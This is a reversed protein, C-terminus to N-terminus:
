PVGAFDVTVHAGSLPESLVIAQQQVTTAAISVLQQALGIPGGFDVLNMDQALQLPMDIVENGTTFNAVQAILGAEELDRALEPPLAAVKGKIVVPRPGFLLPVLVQNFGVNVALGVTGPLASMALGVSTDLFGAAIQQNNENNLRPGSIRFGDVENTRPTFLLQDMVEFSTVNQTERVVALVAAVNTPVENTPYGLATLDVPFRVQMPLTPPEGEIKLNLAPGMTAGGEPVVGSLLTQLQALRLPELKFKTRTPVATPEILVRVPGGDSQAELIGGQPYLGVFGDDFEQRSVPVYVRTGNLNVFTASVFDEETGSIFSSFSGDVKSLVTQTEGTSENVLIVPVEPDAVGPQGHVVIAFPDDGPEFAPIDDLIASPVNTAGPEYIILQATAVRTSLPVTTFSFESQGELPLGTPDAITAALRVRYTTNAELDVAPSLTAITNRLNLTLAATVISDDPNLLQIAGGIVTAPNVAENFRLVVSGVRPVRTANHAPTIEAVRPGAPATGLDQEVATQPDPITVSVFGTDGTLPDTVGVEVAGVPAVLQFRGMADTLTLWPLGTLRVPMNLQVEGAGNRAVGSILGQAEGVRVLVFQGSGRLGPLREATLPELSSM